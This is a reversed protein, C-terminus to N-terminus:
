TGELLVPDYIDSPQIYGQAENKPHITLKVGQGNYLQSFFGVVTGLPSPTASSM